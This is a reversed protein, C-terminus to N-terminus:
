QKNETQIQYVAVYEGIEDIVCFSALVPVEEGEQAFIELVVGDLKAAEDATAKDTEYSFLAEGAKVSDGAAKHWKTIICSEVSIGVRPMIVATAM